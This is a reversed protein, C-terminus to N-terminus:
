SLTHAEQGLQEVWTVPLGIMEAVEQASLGKGLMNLAIEERGQELGQEIGQELGRTHGRKEFFLVVPNDDEIYFMHDELIQELDIETILKSTLLILLSQVKDKLQRNHTISAALKLATSTLQAPTKGQKSTYMPLYILELWNIDSAKSQTLRALAEDADRESLVLIRPTFRLSKNHYAWAKPPKATVIVTEFDIGHKRTLDINYSGFRTLDPMTVQDEWDLTMGTGDALKFATDAYAKKTTTETIEVSLIEVIPQDLAPDLFSLTSDKFIDLSEKFVKDKSHHTNIHM